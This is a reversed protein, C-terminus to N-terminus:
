ISCRCQLPHRTFNYTFTDSKVSLLKNIPNHQSSFSLAALKIQKLVTSLSKWSEKLSQRSKKHFDCKKKLAM